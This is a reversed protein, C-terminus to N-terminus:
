PVQLSAGGATVAIPSGDVAWALAQGIAVRTSGSAIVEFRVACLTGRGSAGRSRDTRGIGIVVDGPRSLGNVLFLTAAGDRKLFDGESADIFRLHTPDFLLHLPADVVSTWSEAEIAVTVSDWMRATGPNLLLSLTLGNPNSEGAGSSAPAATAAGEQPPAPAAGAKAGPTMDDPTRGLPALFAAGPADSEPGPSAGGRSTASSSEEGSTGQTGGGGEHGGTASAPPV